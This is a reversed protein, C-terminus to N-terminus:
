RGSAVGLYESYEVLYKLVKAAKELTSYPCLNYEKYKEYSEGGREADVFMTSFVVPKGYERMSKRTKELSKLEADDVAGGVWSLDYEVGPPTKIWGSMRATMGFGGVAMVADINEDEIMPQLCDYTSFEGGPDIPNGHSWRRSLISNLKEITADSFPPVELGQRRVADASMVALGGAMALIGVRRGRPLPQGLLAVAVDGLESVDDVRIVGSQKFATECVV